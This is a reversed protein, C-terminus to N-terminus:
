YLSLVMLLHHHHCCANFPLIDSIFRESSPPPLPLPSTAPTQWAAALRLGETDIAAVYTTNALGCRPSIGTLLPSPPVHSPGICPLFGGLLLLPQPAAKPDGVRTVM